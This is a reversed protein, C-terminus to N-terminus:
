PLRQQAEFHISKSEKVRTAKFAGAYNDFSWDGSLADDALAGKIKLTGPSAEEPNISFELNLKGDTFTGKVDDKGWKGTVQDGDQQFVTEIIRDGGETSLVFHWKGAVTPTTQATKAAGFPVLLASGILLIFMALLNKMTAKHLLVVDDSAGSAESLLKM